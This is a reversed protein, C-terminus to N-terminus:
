GAQQRPEEPLRFAPLTGTAPRALLFGQMLDVGMTRLCHFEAATEVGECICHMELEEFLHLLNRLILQRARDGEIGRILGMDLKVVDPQFRSLLGLGSWGAGFDDIATHFGLARYTKLIDLLHDTDLREAETFEFMLRDTPFGTRRATDLTIRICARPDYVANPLFNISLLAGTRALGLRAALEIATVRCKQDFAYLTDASVQALIQEPSRGDEARLLAEYAFVRGERLDVIPQFAMTFPVDFADGERCAQCKPSM